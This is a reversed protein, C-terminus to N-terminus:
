KFKRRENKFWNDLKKPSLQTEKILVIKEEATPYPNDKHKLYWEKLIERTSSSFDRTRKEHRTDEQDNLAIDNKFSKFINEFEISTSISINELKEVLGKTHEINESIQIIFLAISQFVFLSTENSSFYDWLETKCSIPHDLIKRCEVVSLLHLDIRSVLLELKDSIEQVDIRTTANNSSDRLKFLDYCIPFLQHSLIDTDRDELALDNLHITNM